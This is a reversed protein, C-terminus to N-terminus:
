LLCPTPRTYALVVSRCAEGHNVWPLDHAAIRPPVSRARAKSAVRRTRMACSNNRSRPFRAFNLLTIGGPTSARAPWPFSPVFPTPDPRTPPPACDRHSQIIPTLNRTKNARDPRPRTLTQGISVNYINIARIACNDCCDKGEDGGEGPSAENRQEKHGGSEARRERGGASTVKVM